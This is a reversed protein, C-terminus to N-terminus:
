AMFACADIVWPCGVMYLCAVGVAQEHRGVPRAVASSAVFWLSSGFVRVAVCVAVCLRVVRCVCGVRVCVGLLFAVLVSLSVCM